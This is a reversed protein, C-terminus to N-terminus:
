GSGSLADAGASMGGREAARGTTMPSDFPWRNAVADIGRALTAAPKVPPVLPVAGSAV